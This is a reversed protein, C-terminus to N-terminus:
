KAEPTVRPTGCGYGAFMVTAGIDGCTGTYDQGLAAEGVELNGIPTEWKVPEPERRLPTALIAGLLRAAQNNWYEGPRMQNESRTVREAIRTRLDVLEADSVPEAKAKCFECANPMQRHICMKTAVGVKSHDGITGCGFPSVPVAPPTPQATFVKALVHCKKGNKNSVRQAEAKAESLCAHRYEPKRGKPYPNFVMWWPNTVEDSAPSSAVPAPTTISASLIAKAVPYSELNSRVNEPSVVIGNSCWAIFCADRQRALLAEADVVAPRSARDREIEAIMVDIVPDSLMSHRRYLERKEQETVKSM